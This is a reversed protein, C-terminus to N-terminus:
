LSIRTGPAADVALLVPPGGDLVVTAVGETATEVVGGAVEAAEWSDGGCDPCWLRPPHALRGCTTCREVIM